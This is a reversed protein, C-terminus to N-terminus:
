LNIIDELYCWKQIKNEKCFLDWSAESSCDSPFVKISDLQPIRQNQFEIYSVYGIRVFGVNIELRESKDKWIESKM